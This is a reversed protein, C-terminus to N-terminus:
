WEELTRAIIDEALDAIAANVEKASKFRSMVEVSVPWDAFRDRFDLEEPPTLLTGVSIGVFRVVSGSSTEATTGESPLSCASLALGLLAICLLPFPRPLM